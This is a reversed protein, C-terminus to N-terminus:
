SSMTVRPAESWGFRSMARAVVDHAIPIASTAAPSPANCIHITRATERILFDHALTGDALVAQARIGARYPTLDDLKLEPCYRQCLALYRSKSLSNWMESIGSRLNARIVKRFGPYAIMESLDDLNIDGFQYGERAFALVANPGVTVYGGIMRTLHVGLFPLSPDPIPYILHKVIDNKDDGLRYYEGRFPVIQFDLDIGCKKALRDAMVGACVIVHRARITHRGADIRVEGPEEHIDDVHANTKIEGGRETVLGAMTRTVLGYDVIGTTPVFLAGLGVIHPERRALEEADIREVSLENAICREHLANMRDIESPDTAVLLKGCQDFPLGYEKCFRMTAVAGEKCFRAKLSGPQYYVGAHIVGSNRGTQHAALRSEKELLVISLGPFRESVHWATALGVIGGGIIALDYNM